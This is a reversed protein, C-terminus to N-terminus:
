RNKSMLSSLFIFHRPTRASQYSIPRLHFTWPHFQQVAPSVVDSNSFDKAKQSRSFESSLEKKPHLPSKKVREIWQSLLKNHLFIWIALCTRSYRNSQWPSYSVYSSTSWCHRLHKIRRRSNCWSLSKSFILLFGIPIFNGLYGCTDDADTAALACVGRPNPPTERITHLISM